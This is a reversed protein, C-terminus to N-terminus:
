SMPFSWSVIKTHNWVDYLVVHCFSELYYEVDYIKFLVGLLCTCKHECLNSRYLWVVVDICIQPCTGSCSPRVSHTHSRLCLETITMVFWLLPPPLGRIKTREDLPRDGASKRILWSLNASLRSLYAHTDGPNWHAHVCDKRMIRQFSFCSSPHSYVM